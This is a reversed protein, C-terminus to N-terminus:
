NGIKVIKDAFNNVINSHAIFIIQAHTLSTITELILQSRDESMSVLVEDLILLSQQGEHLFIAIALRLAIAAASLEGGSLQAVPREQGDKTTVFTKFDESLRLEIFDGNTFKSLIDSAISTLAPISTRIRQEKFDTLSKNSSSLVDLRAMLLEHEKIAKKTQEYSKQADEKKSKAIDLQTKLEINSMKFNNYEDKLANYKDTLDRFDKASLAGIDKLKKDFIKLSASRAKLDANINKVETKLINLNKSNAEQIKLENLTAESAKIKINSSDLKLKLDKTKNEIIPYEKKAEDQKGKIELLDKMKEIENELEKIEEALKLYKDRYVLSKDKCESIIKSHKERESDIDEIESGCFPCENIGEKLKNIFSENDNLKNKNIAAEIALDDLSKKKVELDKIIANYKKNIDKDVETRIIIDLEKLKNNNINLETNIKLNSEKEEDLEKTLLNIDGVKKNSNDSSLREIMEIKQSLTNQLIKISNDIENREAEVKDATDRLEKQNQYNKIEEKATKNLEILNKTSDDFKKELEKALNKAKNLNDTEEEISNYQILSASKQLDRIQERSLAIAETISKVGILQEIVDGREKPTASVIQDVQKQQIFTSAFFGKEDCGLLKRIYNESHSIGPGCEFEFDIESNVPRSYINCESVGEDTKIQRKILYERNGVIFNIAVSVESTKPDVGEKIYNRNRLGHLRTGFLCWSISDVITSKGSGNEGSIATTGLLEPEFVFHEHCRINNIEVKLLIM